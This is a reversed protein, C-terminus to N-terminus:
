ENMFTFKCTRFNIELLNLLANNEIAFAILFREYNSSKALLDKFYSTKKKEINLTFIIM